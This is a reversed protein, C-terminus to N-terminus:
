DSYGPILDPIILWNYTCIVMEEDEFFTVDCTVSKIPFTKLDLSDSHNTFISM